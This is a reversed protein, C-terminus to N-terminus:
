QQVCDKLTAELAIEPTWGTDAKLASADGYIELADTPRVLSQDVVVEADKKGTLEKLTDIIEEGSRSMGSCVNYISHYLNPTTALLSYARAVDRVDTYDRRTAINGVMVQNGTQLQKIVDPVLFGELQGPGIHNFPRVVVCDLGRNRYYQCQNEVLVKSVAYPSNYGIASDEKLPMPQDSSYIAGSSVVILRPKTEASVYHEAISTLMASNLNIYDQPHEFSPGVAALGALHIVADVSSIAPWSQVLDAVKYEFLFEAIEPDPEPERSVGIIAIGNNKLERALHKGVFGNIGTVVVIKQNGSPTEKNM